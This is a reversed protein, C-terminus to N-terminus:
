WVVLFGCFMFALSGLLSGAQSQHLNRLFIYMFLGALLPQLLILLSWADIEDFVFFLLNLPSFVASQYNALHPTGAFSYPNWSPIHGSKWTEITLKKWPYIQTIVDPMANNKVQMGYAANWPPFFTVLYKSPFPVLGEFLYPFSFILWVVVIFALPWIKKMKEKTAVGVVERLYYVRQISSVYERGVGNSRCAM